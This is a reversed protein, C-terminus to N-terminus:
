ELKKALTVFNAKPTTILGTIGKEGLVCLAKVDQCTINIERLNEAGLSTGILRTLQVMFAFTSQLNEPDDGKAEILEGDERFHVASLVEPEAFIQTMVDKPLSISMPVVACPAGNPIEDARHAAEILLSHWDREITATMPRVGDEITFNGKPWSLIEYFALEGTTDGLVAHVVQGGAFYIRGSQGNGDVRVARTNLSLCEMQILDALTAGQLVGEFGMPSLM